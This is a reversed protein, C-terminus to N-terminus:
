LRVSLRRLASFRVSFSMPRPPLFLGRLEEFDENEETGGKDLGRSERYISLATGLYYGATAKNFGLIESIRWAKSEIDAIKRSSRTADGM